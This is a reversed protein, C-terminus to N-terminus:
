DLEAGRDVQIRSYDTIERDPGMWRIYAFDATPRKALDLLLKRPIWRADSLALAVGHAELMALVDDTIWARHRFEIAFALSRDLLPLFE